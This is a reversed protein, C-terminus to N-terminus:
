CQIIEIIFERRCLILRYFRNRRLIWKVRQTVPSNFLLITWFILFYLFTSCVQYDIGMVICTCLYWVINSWDFFNIFCQKYWLFCIHTPSIGQLRFAAHVRPLERQVLHEVHHCTKTFLPHLSCEEASQISPFLGKQWQQQVYYSRFESFVWWWSVTHKFANMEHNLIVM